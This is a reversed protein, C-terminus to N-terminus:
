YSERNELGAVCHPCHSSKVSYIEELIVIIVIQGFIGHFSM